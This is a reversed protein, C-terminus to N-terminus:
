RICTLQYASQGRRKEERREWLPRRVKQDLFSNCDSSHGVRQAWATCSERYREIRKSRHADSLLQQGQAILDSLETMSSPKLRKRSKL